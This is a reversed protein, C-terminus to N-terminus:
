LPSDSKVSEILEKARKYNYKVKELSDGPYTDYPPLKAIQACSLRQRKDWVDYMADYSDLHRKKRFVDKDRSKWFNRALILARKVELLAVEIPVKMDVLIDLFRGGVFVESPKLVQPYPDSKKRFALFASKSVPKLHKRTALRIFSLCIMKGIAASYEGKPDPLQTTVLFYKSARKAGDKRDKNNTCWAKYDDNYPKSRRVREWWDKKIKEVANLKKDTM